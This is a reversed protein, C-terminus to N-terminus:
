AVGWPGFVADPPLPTLEQVNVVLTRMLPEYPSRGSSWACNIMVNAGNEQGRMTAALARLEGGAPFQSLDASVAASNKSFDFAVGLRPGSGDATTTFALGVLSSVLQTDVLDLWFRYLGVAGLWSAPNAPDGNGHLTPNPYRRMGPIQHPKAPTQTAPDIAAPYSTMCGASMFTYAGPVTADVLFDVTTLPTKLQNVIVVAVGGWSPPPHQGNTPFNAPNVQFSHFLHLPTATPLDSLPLDAPDSQTAKTLAQWFPGGLFLIPAPQAEVPTTIPTPMTM